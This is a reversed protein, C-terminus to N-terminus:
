AAGPASGFIDPIVRANRIAATTANRPTDSTSGADARATPLECTAAIWTASRACADRDPSRPRRARATSSPRRDQRELAPRAEDRVAGDPLPRDGREARECSRREARSGERGARDAAVDDLELEQERPVAEGRSSRRRSRSARRPPAAASGASPRGARRHADGPRGRDRREPRRDGVHGSGSAHGSRTATPSRKPGRPAPKWGPMSRGAAVPVGTCAAATPRTVKAPGVVLPYPFRTTTLARPRHRSSTRGGRASRRTRPSATVTPVSTPRTPAVRRSSRAQVEVELHPGRRPRRGAARREATARSVGRGSVVTSGTSSTPCAARARGHDRPDPVRPLARARRALGKALKAIVDNSPVPRSGHVIHNLYGASLGTKAALGRYTTGTEDM